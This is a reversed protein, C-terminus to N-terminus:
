GPNPSSNPASAGAALRLFRGPPDLSQEVLALFLEVATVELRRDVAPGPDVQDVRLVGFGLPADPLGTPPSRLEVPKRLLVEVFRPFRELLLPEVVRPREALLDELQLRLVELGM